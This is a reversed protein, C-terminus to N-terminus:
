LLLNCIKALFDEQISVPASVRATFYSLTGGSPGHSAPQHQIQLASEASEKLARM